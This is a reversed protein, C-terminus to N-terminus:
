LGGLEFLGDNNLKIGMKVPRGMSNDAYSVPEGSEDDFQIIVSGPQDQKNWQDDNVYIWVLWQADSKVGMLPESREYFVADIPINEFYERKLDKM